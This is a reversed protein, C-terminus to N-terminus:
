EIGKKARVLVLPNEMDLLGWGGPGILEAAFRDFGGTVTVECDGSRDQNTSILGQVLGEDVLRRAAKAPVMWVLMRDGAPQLRGVMYDGLEGDDGQGGRASAAMRVWDGPMERISLLEIGEQRRVVADMRNLRFEGDEVGVVAIELRGSAADAVRVFWPKNDSDTWIGEVSLAQLDAPESGLPQRSTALNCGGGLLITALLTGVTLARLLAFPQRSTPETTNMPRQSPKLTRPMGATM